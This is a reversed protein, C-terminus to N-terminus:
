GPAPSALPAPPAAPTAARPAADRRPLRSPWTERLLSAPTQHCIAPLFLPLPEALGPLFAFVLLGPRLSAPQHDAVADGADIPSPPGPRSRRRSRRPPWRRVVAALGVDVLRDARGVADLRVFAAPVSGAAAFTSRVQLFRRFLGVAVQAEVKGVLAVVVKRWVACAARICFWGASRRCGRRVARVLLGVAGVAFHRPFEVDDVRELVAPHLDLVRGVQGLAVLQFQDAEVVRHVPRRQEEGVLVHGVLDRRRGPRLRIPQLSYLPAIVSSAIRAKPM